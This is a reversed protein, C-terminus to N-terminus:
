FRSGVQSRTRIAESFDSIAREYDGKNGYAIGRKFSALGQDNPNLRMAESLTATARDYNGANIDANSQSVLTSYRVRAEAESRKRDEGANAPARRQQEADEVNRKAEAEAEAKPKRGQEAELAALRLQEAEDVNRKTDAAARATVENRTEAWPRLESFDIWSLGVWALLLLVAAAAGGLPIIFERRLM